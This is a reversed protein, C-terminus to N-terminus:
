ATIGREKMTEEIQKKYDYLEALEDDVMSIEVELADIEDLWDVDGGGEVMDQVLEDIHNELSRYKGHGDEIHSIVSELEDRLRKEEDIM